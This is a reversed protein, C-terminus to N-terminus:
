SDARGAGHGVAEETAGAGLALDARPAHVEVGGPAWGTAKSWRGKRAKVTSSILLRPADLKRKECSAKWLVTLKFTENACHIHYLAEVDVRLVQVAM